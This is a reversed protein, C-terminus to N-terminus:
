RTITAVVHLSAITLLLKDQTRPSFVHLVVGKAYEIGLLVVSTAYVLVLCIMVNVYLGTYNTLADILLAVAYLLYLGIIFIVVSKYQSFTKVKDAYAASDKAEPSLSFIAIIAQVISCFLLM